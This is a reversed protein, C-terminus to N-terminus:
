SGHMFDPQAYEAPLNGTEKPPILRLNLNALAARVKEANLREDLTLFESCGIELATAVHVADLGKLVVKHQWRLNQVLEGTRPTPTHLRVFQGNTLITRFREQAEVRVDAQGREVAVCESLTVMFTYLIVEGNEHARMLQKLFWVNDEGGDPLLGVDKKVADIFCPSDVYLKPSNVM